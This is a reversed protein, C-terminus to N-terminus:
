ITHTYRLEILSFKILLRIEAKSTLVKVAPAYFAGTKKLLKVQQPKIFYIRRINIVKYRKRGDKEYCVLYDFSNACIYQFREKQLHSHNNQEAKRM